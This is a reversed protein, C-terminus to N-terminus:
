WTDYYHQLMGIFQGLEKESFSINVEVEQKQDENFDKISLVLGM